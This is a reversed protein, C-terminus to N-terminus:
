EDIGGSPALVRVGDNENSRVMTPTPESPRKKPAPSRGPTSAPVAAAPAAPPASAARPKSVKPASAAPASAAKAVDPNSAAQPSFAPSSNAVSAPLAVAAPPQTGGIVPVTAETTASAAAAVAAAEAGPKLRDVLYYDLVRRAIPGAAQAGWGGNEVILALPKDFGAFMRKARDLLERKDFQVHLQM